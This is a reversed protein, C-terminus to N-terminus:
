QVVRFKNLPIKSVTSSTLSTGWNATMTEEAYIKPHGSTDVLYMGYKQLAHAIIIGTPTVGLKALDADTLSPDLQFRTGEPVGGLHTGDTSSAPYVFTTGTNQFAFALAHDIHGQKVEWARILGALYPVGAGRPGRFGGAVVASYKTNYHYGNKATYPKTANFQYIGWEDGTTPNWFIVEGDSGPSAKAGASVPIQIAGKTNSGGTATIQKFVGSFTVTQMPTSSNVIYVPYTYQTPDSGFYGTLQAVLSASKSSVTPTAGIPTNWPSAATYPLMNGTAAITTSAITSTAATGPTSGVSTTATSNSGSTSSGRSTSSIASSTSDAPVVKQPTSAQKFSVKDLWVAYPTGAYNGVLRVGVNMKNSTDAVSNFYKDIYSTKGDVVISIFHTRVGVHEAEFTIHHWKLAALSAASKGTSVWRQNAQDWVDWQHDGRVNNQFAFQYGKGSVSQSFQFGLAQVSAPDKVFVELDYTFHNAGALPMIQKEWTDVTYPKNRSISFAASKGDMSPWRQSEVMTGGTQTLSQWGSMQDINSDTKTTDTTASFGAAAACAVILATATGIGYFNRQLL